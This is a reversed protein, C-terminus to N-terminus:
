TEQRKQTHMCVRHTHQVTKVPGKVTRSGLEPSKKELLKILINAEYCNDTLQVNMSIGPVGLDNTKKVM